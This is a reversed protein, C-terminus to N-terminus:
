GYASLTLGPNGTKYVTDHPGTSGASGISLAQANFNQRVRGEGEGVCIGLLPPWASIAGRSLQAFLSFCRAERARSFFVISCCPSQKAFHGGLGGVELPNGLGLRPETAPTDKVALEWCAPKPQMEWAWHGNLSRCTTYLLYIPARQGAWSLFCYSLM